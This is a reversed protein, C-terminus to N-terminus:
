LRRCVVNTSWIDYRVAMSASRGRATAFLARCEARTQFDPSLMGVARYRSGVRRVVTTAALDFPCNGGGQGVVFWSRDHRAAVVNFCGLGYKAVM